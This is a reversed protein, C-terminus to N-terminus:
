LQHICCFLGFGVFDLDEYHNIQNISWEISCWCTSHHNISSICTRKYVMMEDSQLFFITCIRGRKSSFSAKCLFSKIELFYQMRLHKFPLIYLFALTHNLNQSWQIQKRKLFLTLTSHYNTAPTFLSEFNHNLNKRKELFLSIQGAFKRTM